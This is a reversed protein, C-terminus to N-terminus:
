FGVIVGLRVERPTDWKRQSAGNVNVNIGTLRENYRKAYDDGTTFVKTDTDYLKMDNAGLQTGLYGDSNPDGTAQYVGLPNETDLLNLVRVYFDTKFMGWEIEKNLKLDIRFTWPGYRSNVGDIPADKPVAISITSAASNYKNSPTYPFGSRGLFLINLGSNELFKAGEGKQARIDINASITHRQDFSLPQTFKATEFGLWAANFNERSTSGTGEAFALSYAFRSSVLGFRRAEIGIDIGKITGYDQNSILYLAAGGPATTGTYRVNVLNKIDKYYATVNLRMNDAVEHTIGVEYGTTEEPKLNPNQVTYTPSGSVAKYEILKTGYYLDTLNSQQFFKGYNFHFVTKDSIPFGVGLRPSFQSEIKTDLFDSEDAKRARPDGSEVQNAGLPDREDRLTKTNANFFDFRLGANVVLGESEIKDQAYIAIDYPHRQKDLLGGNGNENKKADLTYGYANIISSNTDRNSEFNEYYSLSHYRYEFGVKLQNHDDIQSVINVKPNIYSADYTQYFRGAYGPAFYLGYPDYRDGAVFYPKYSITDTGEIRYASNIFNSLGNTDSTNGQWTSWGEPFFFGGTEPDYLNRPNDDGATKYLNFKDRFVGDGNFHETSFYAGGVEMYTSKDFTYTFTGSITSNKDQDWQAHDLNYKWIDAYTQKKFDSHILNLNLKAIPTIRYSLKSQITFGDNRDNPLYGKNWNELKGGRYITGVTGQTARTTALNKLEGSFFITMADYDPILPGSLSLNYVNYGRSNKDGMFFDSEMELNATYRPAAEKTVVNIVGSLARGYEANFGGTQTQVEEIANSNVSVTAEGTLLNNQEFGDVFIITENARGGRTFFTNNDTGRGSVVGTQVTVVGEFGRLPLNKIEGATTISTSNTQDKQILPRTAEIVIEGLEVAELPLEFKAETTYGASARVNKITVERYGIYSAKISYTGVPVNIIFFEGNINTAGGLQVQEVLTVTAGILPEGTSKDVVKGAIKGTTTVQTSVDMQFILIAMGLIFFFYRMSNMVNSRRHQVFIKIDNYRNYGINM